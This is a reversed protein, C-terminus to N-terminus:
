QEAFEGRFFLERFELIQQCAVPREGDVEHPVDDHLCGALVHHVGKGAADQGEIGVVLMRVVARRLVDQALAEFEDCQERLQGNVSILGVTIVVVSVREEDVRGELLVRRGLVDQVHQAHVALERGEFRLDEIHREDQVCLVATTVVRGERGM